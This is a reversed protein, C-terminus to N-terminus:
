AIDVPIRGEKYIELHDYRVIRDDAILHAYEKCFRCGTNTCTSVEFFLTVAELLEMFTSTYTLEGKTSHPILSWCLPNNHNGLSNLSLGIMDVTTKCFSFTVYGNLQFDWGSAIALLANM